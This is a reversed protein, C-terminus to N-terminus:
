YSNSSSWFCCCSFSCSFYSPSSIAPMSVDKSVTSEYM